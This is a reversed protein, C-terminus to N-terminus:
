WSESDVHKSRAHNSEIKKKLELLLDEIETIKAILKNFMYDKKMNILFNSLLDPLTSYKGDSYDSLANAGTVKEVLELYAEELDEETYKLKAM